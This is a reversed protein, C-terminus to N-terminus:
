DVDIRAMLHQQPIQGAALDEWLREAKEPTMLEYTLRPKGPMLVDVLPEKYCFGICGTKEVVGDWHKEHAKEQLLDFIRQGGAALGCTAMGVLIKATPPYLRALGAEKARQLDEINTIQM